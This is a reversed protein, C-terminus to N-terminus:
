AVVAVVDDVVEGGGGFGDAGDSRADGVAVDPGAEAVVEAFEEAPLQGGGRVAELAPVFVGFVEGVGVGCGPEWASVAAVFADVVDAVAEREAAAAVV